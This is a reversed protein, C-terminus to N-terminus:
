EENGSESSNEAPNRRSSGATKKVTNHMAKSLSEDGDGSGGPLFGTILVFVELAVYTTFPLFETYLAKFLLSGFGLYWAIIIFPVVVSLAVAVKGRTGMRFCSVFALIDYALFGVWILAFFWFFAIVLISGWDLNQTDTVKGFVVFALYSVLLITLVKRPGLQRLKNISIRAFSMDSESIYPM